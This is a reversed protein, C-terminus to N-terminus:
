QKVYKEMSKKHKKREKLFNRLLMGANVVIIAGYVIWLIDKMM